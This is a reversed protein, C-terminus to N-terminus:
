LIIQQYIARAFVEAVAPVIANGLCRLRHSRHPIGHAVRGVSPEPLWKIGNANDDSAIEGTSRSRGMQVDSSRRYRDDGNPDAVDESGCKISANKTTTSQHKRQKRWGAADSYAVIWVRDRRHRADVACAPVVCPWCSYGINELDSLVSDLEMSVIGPVNEGLVWAPRAESIVRLMEPWLHRDDEKGKRKGATSFPQCPFGGTIVDVGAYDAGNLTFIDPHLRPSPSDSAIGRQQRSQKPRWSQRRDCKSDEVIAGFQKVLIKQAYEDKECFGVTEFGARQFAIAFGGIGSFLDLHTPKM